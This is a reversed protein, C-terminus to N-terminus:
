HGFIITILKCKTTQYKMLIETHKSLCKRIVKVLRLIDYNKASLKAILLKARSTFDALKTTNRAIRLLQGSCVGYAPGEPINGTIDPYNIIDFKFADRKDYIKTCCQLNDINIQLDLFSAGDTSENELNLILEEPYIDKWHDGLHGGNNLTALDDIFRRIYSYFKRAVGYDQETLKKMYHFEYFFLYLNAMFPAPDTGMPIGILQRMAKNGAQFIANDVIYDIMAHVNEKSFLKVADDSSGKDFKAQNGRIRIWQNSGGCFAKDVVWKLKDKLDDQNLKTYLTSFDFTHISKANGKANVQDIDHLIDKTSETIWMRNIGTYSKIKDCYDRLIKMVLKLIQTLDKAVSKTVCKKAAIIYRFKVPKKHMKITAYIIPLTQHDKTVQGGIDIATKIQKETIETINGIDEYTDSQLEKILNSIMYKRCVFGINNSAKDIPAIIFDEQLQKLSQISDKNSLVKENQRWTKLKGNRLFEIRKDVRELVKVKWEFFIEKAKRNRYSWKNIYKDLGESISQKAKTFNINNRERYNPGKQFLKRLKKDSIIDLNGTIVHKHDKDIFENYESTCKCPHDEINWDDIDVDKLTDHYNFIKARISNTYSFVVTEDQDIHPRIVTQLETDKLIHSLNIYSVAPNDYRIVIANVNHKKNSDEAPAHYKLKYDIIDIIFSRIRETLKDCETDSDSLLIREGLESLQERNMQPITKHILNPITKADANKIKEMLEDAKM